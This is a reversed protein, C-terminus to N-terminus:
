FNVHANDTFTISESIISTRPPLKNTYIIFLLQRLNSKHPFGHETQQNSLIIQEWIIEKLKKDETDKTAASGIKM